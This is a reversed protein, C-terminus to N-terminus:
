RRRERVSSSAASRTRPWSPTTELVAPAQPHETHGVLLNVAYRQEAALRRADEAEADVPGALLDLHDVLDNRLEVIWRALGPYNGFEAGITDVLPMLAADAAQRRAERVTQAFKLEAQRGAQLFGGLRQRVESLGQLRRQREADSLKELAEPENGPEPRLAM